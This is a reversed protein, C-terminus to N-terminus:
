HWINYYLIISILLIFIYNIDLLKINWLFSNRLPEVMYKFVNTISFCKVGESNIRIFVNGVTVEVYIFFLLSILSIFPILRM